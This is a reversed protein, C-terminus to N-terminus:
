QSCDSSSVASSNSIFCASRVWFVSNVTVPWYAADTKHMSEATGKGVEDGTHNEESSGTCEPQGGADGQSSATAASSEPSDRRTLQRTQLATIM